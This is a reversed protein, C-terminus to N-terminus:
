GPTYIIEFLRLGASTVRYEKCIAMSPHPRSAWSLTFDELTKIAPAPPKAVATARCRKVVPTPARRTTTAVFPQGGAELADRVELWRRHARGHNANPNLLILLTLDAGARASRAPLDRVPM